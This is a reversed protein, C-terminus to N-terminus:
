NSTNEEISVNTGTLLLLVPTKVKSTSAATKKKKFKEPLLHKEGQELPM